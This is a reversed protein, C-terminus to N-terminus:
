DKNLLASFNQLLSKMLAEHDFNEKFYKQGNLGMKKLEVHDMKSVRLLLSALEDPAEPKCVFGANAEMIIRACEGSVSGIVPNGAALFAQLRNPITRSFIETNRLTLLMCSARQFVYPMLSPSVWGFVIVNGLGRTSVEERLWGLRIGGGFIIIRFGDLNQLKAAADLITELAQADGVNGAYVCNFGGFFLESLKKPVHGFNGSTELKVSNPWYIIPCEPQYRSIDETFARSPVLLLDCRRYIFKVVSGIITLLFVNNINGTDSISQPWLDQVYLVFKSRNLRALFIGALAQLIPSPAYCLIINFKEKRLNLFGFIAATLVFSLYNLCLLVKSNVGRPVIPVRVVEIGEEQRRSSGLASFGAFIKGDPYNPQGTLVVLEEVESKLSDVIENIRFNEPRFYQSLVLVKIPSHREFSMTRSNRGFSQYAMLM